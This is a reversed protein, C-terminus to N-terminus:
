DGFNIRQCLDDIEDATLPTIGDGFHDMAIPTDDEPLDFQWARLAALVTAVDRESLNVTM